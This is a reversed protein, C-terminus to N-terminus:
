FWTFKEPVYLIDGPRLYYSQSSEGKLVRQLDVKFHEIRGGPAKRDIIVGRLNARSYDPGGCEMIADLATLPRDSSVKAPNRVAGTVYVYFNSAVILVSIDSSTLQDKYKEKLEDQLQTATKGAAEIEGIVPLAIKGDRRIQVTTDLNPASAFVVKITDGESLVIAQEKGPQGLSAPSSNTACGSILLMVALLPVLIWSFLPNLRNM